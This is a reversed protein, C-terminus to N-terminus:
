SKIIFKYDKPISYTVEYGIEGGGVDVNLINMHIPNTNYQNYLQITRTIVKLGTGTGLPRIGPKVGGGNDCVKIEFRNGASNIKIWLKREGEKLSLSHKVANEVLIYISMAPISLSTLDLSEDVDVIYCFNDGLSDKELSLFSNVFDMEDALSISIQDILELQKRLLHTLTLLNAKDAENQLRNMEHNLVNFIFHPSIRNRINDLRLSNISTQMHWMRKEEKRRRYFFLASIAASMALVGIVLIYLWQNLRLVKNEHQRILIEKQMLANGYRHRLLMEASRMQIRYNRISDDIRTNERQYFYAKKFDGNEEFYHQLYRNRLHLVNPEVYGLKLSEKIRKRALPLNKQKVALEILQTDIYYLISANDIKRFFDHCSKLYFAASDVENLLLFIEGLNVNTLHREFEMHPWKSVLSQSRRFYELATQYNQRFFYSYGRSNLYTHKESPQMQDFYHGAKEYFTDCAAFDQLEMHVQGLGLYTPFREEEPIRLSDDLSLSKWYWFSALDYRGRRVYSDAVNIAINPLEKHDKSNRAAVFAHKFYYNASDMVTKRSYYNGLMNYFASSLSRFSPDNQHSTCFSLSQDLLSKVSDMEALYFMSQTKLLLLRYYVLSDSVKPIRANVENLVQQPHTSINSDLQNLYGMEPGVLIRQHNPTCGMFFTLLSLMLILMHIYLRNM